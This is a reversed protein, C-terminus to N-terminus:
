DFIDNEKNDMVIKVDKYGEDDQHMGILIDRFLYLTELSEIYTTRLLEGAETPRIMAPTFAVFSQLEFITNSILKASALSSINHKRAIIDKYSKLDKLESYAAVATLSNDVDYSDLEDQLELTSNKM